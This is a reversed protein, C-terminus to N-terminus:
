TPPDVGAATFSTRAAPTALYDLLQRVADSRSGAAPLAAAYTTYVQLEPPLPGVLLLGRDKFLRIETLAGFGIERGSGQLLHEMASAGDAHRKAKPVVQEEIGMNRLMKEVLQGTSARNYVVSDAELISRKVSAADGIAPLPAGPRVAVGLGVRGVGVREAGVKATRAAADLVALPAIVVDWPEGAGLRSAIQPAANFTIRVTHGTAAEFAAVVPKLGPEVAGGSLLAIEAAGAAQAFCFLAAAIRFLKTKM